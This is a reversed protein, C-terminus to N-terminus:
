GLGCGFLSLLGFFNFWFTCVSSFRRFPFFLRLSAEQRMSEGVKQTSEGVQLTISSAICQKETIYVALLGADHLIKLHLRQNCPCFSFRGAAAFGPSSLTGLFRGAARASPKEFKPTIAKSQKNSKTPTPAEQTV